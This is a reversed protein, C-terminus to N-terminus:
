LHKALLPCFANRLPAAEVGTGWALLLDPFPKPDLWGGRGVSAMQSTFTSAKQEWKPTSMSCYVQTEQKQFMHTEALRSDQSSSSSSPPKIISSEKVQLM